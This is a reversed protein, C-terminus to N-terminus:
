ALHGFEIRNLCNRVEQVGTLSDFLSEPSVGGLSPNTKILWRHFKGKEDNFVEQGYDFLEALVVVLESDRVSLLGKEKKKKNYTTQPVGFWNLVHKVPLNARKSIVEIAEYPLKNRIVAVRDMKTSWGYKNYRLAINWTHSGKRARKISATPDFTRTKTPTNELKTKM